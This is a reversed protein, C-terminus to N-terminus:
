DDLYEEGSTEIRKFLSVIYTILPLIVLPKILTLIASPNNLYYETITEFSDKTFLLIYSEVNVVIAILFAVLIPKARFRVLLMGTIISGIVQHFTKGITISTSDTFIDPILQNIGSLYQISFIVTLTYLSYGAAIMLLNDTYKMM